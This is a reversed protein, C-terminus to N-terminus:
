TSDGRLLRLVRVGDLHERARLSAGTANVVRDACEACRNGGDLGAVIFVTERELELERLNVLLCRAEVFRDGDIFVEELRAVDRVRRERVVAVSM